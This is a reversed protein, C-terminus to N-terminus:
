PAMTSKATSLGLLKTSARTARFLAAWFKFTHLRGFFKTQENKVDFLRDLVSPDSLSLEVASLGLGHIFTAEKTRSQTMDESSM